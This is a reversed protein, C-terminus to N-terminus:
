GKMVAVYAMVGVLLSGVIVILNTGIGPSTPLNSNLVVWVLLMLLTVLLGIVKAAQKVV